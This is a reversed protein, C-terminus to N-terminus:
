MCQSIKDSSAFDKIDPCNVDGYLRHGQGSQHNSGNSHTLSALHDTMRPLENEKKGGDLVAVVDASRTDRVSVAPFAEGIEEKM